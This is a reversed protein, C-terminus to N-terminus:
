TRYFYQLGFAHVGADTRGSGDISINKCNYLTGLANEIQEQITAFDNQRQWGYWKTGDFQIVLKFSRM